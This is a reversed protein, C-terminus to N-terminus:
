GLPYLIMKGPVSNCVVLEYRDGDTELSYPKRGLLADFLIFPHQNFEIRYRFPHMPDKLRNLAIEMNAIAKITPHVPQEQIHDVFQETVEEVNTTLDRERCFKKIQSDLQNRDKLIKTTLILLREMQMRHWWSNIKFRVKFLFHSISGGNQSIKEQQVM